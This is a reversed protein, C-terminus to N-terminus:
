ADRDSFAQAIRRRTLGHWTMLAVTTGHPVNVLNVLTSLWVLGRGRQKLCCLGSVILLLGFAWGFRTQFSIFGVLLSTLNEFGRGAFLDAVREPDLVGGAGTAASNILGFLSFLVGLSGALIQLVGVFYLYGAGRRFRRNDSISSSHTM